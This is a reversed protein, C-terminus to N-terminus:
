TGLVVGAAAALVGLVSTAAIYVAAMGIRRQEALAVADRAFSSFTTYAGLGAVGIVTLLPPTVDTLLGLLFSGTVNV